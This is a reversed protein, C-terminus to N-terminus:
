MVMAVFLGVVSEFVFETVGVFLLHIAILRVTNLKKSLESFIQVYHAM